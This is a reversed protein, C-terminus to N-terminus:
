ASDSGKGKRLNKTRGGNGAEHTRELEARERRMVRKAIPRLYHRCEERCDDPIREIAAPWDKLPVDRQIKLAHHLCSSVCSTPQITMM